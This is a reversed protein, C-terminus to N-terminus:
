LSRKNRIMISDSLRKSGLRWKVFLPLGSLSVKLFYNFVFNSIKKKTLLHYSKGNSYLNLGFKQAITQLTKQSYFSIHQGHSFGYYDWENPAPVKKSFTETSFIINPSINLLKKVEKIPDSFHEFCEFVTILTINKHVAPNYEFGKALLNETHIDSWYFDFGNDRMLRVFLGYGAAYDLFLGKKNFLFYLMSSTRKALLINRSVLGTDEINIPYKYAEDFWYPEETQIFDCKPCHYYKVDYKNLLVANFIYNSKTGCIKCICDM